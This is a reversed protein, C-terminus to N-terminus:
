TTRWQCGEWGTRQVQVGECLPQLGEGGEGEAAFGGGAHQMQVGERSSNWTGQVLKM